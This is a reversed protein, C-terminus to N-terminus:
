HGIANVTVRVLGSVSCGSLMEQYWLLGSILGSATYLSAVGSFPLVHNNGSGTEAVAAANIAGFDGRFARIKVTDLSASVMALPTMVGYREVDTTVSLVKDITGVFGMRVEMGTGYVLQAVLKEEQVLMKGDAFRAVIHSTM